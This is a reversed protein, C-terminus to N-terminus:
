KLTLRINRFSAKQTKSPAYKPSGGGFWSTFALGAVKMKNKSWQIKRFENTKGNVTLSIVGDAVGPSNCEVRMAVTNWMGKKFALGRGRWLDIGTGKTHHSIIKFGNGQNKVLKCFENGSYTGQDTAMYVYAVAEGHQRFMVRFSWGDDNWAGGGAGAVGGWVGPLKGGLVFDFDKPFFVEYELSIADAPFINPQARFNVGAKSAFQGKLYTVHVGEADSTYNRGNDNNVNWAQNMPTELTM